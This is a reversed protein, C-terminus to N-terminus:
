CTQFQTGEFRILDDLQIFQELSYHSQQPYKQKFNRFRLMVPADVEYTIYYFRSICHQIESTSGLPFIVYSQRWNSTLQRFLQKVIQMRIERYKKHFYQFCFQDKSLIQVKSDVADLAEQSLHIQDKFENFSPVKKIM